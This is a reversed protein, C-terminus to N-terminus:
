GGSEDQTVREAAWAEVLAWLDLISRGAMSVQVGGVTGTYVTGVTATLGLTAVVDGAKNNIGPGTPYTIVVQTDKAPDSAYTATVTGDANTTITAGTPSATAVAPDYPKGTTTFAATAGDATFKEQTAPGNAPVTHTSGLNKVVAGTASDILQWDIFAQRSPNGRTATVKPATGSPLAM